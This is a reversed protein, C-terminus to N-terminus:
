RQASLFFLYGGLGFAAVTAAAAKSPAAVSLSKRGVPIRAAFSRQGNLDVPTAVSLDGGDGIAAMKAEYVAHRSCLHLWEVM